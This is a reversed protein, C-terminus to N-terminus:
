HSLAQDTAEPTTRDVSLTTPTAKADPEDQVEWEALLEDAEYEGPAPIHDSNSDCRQQKGTSDALM